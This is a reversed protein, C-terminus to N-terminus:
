RESKKYSDWLTANTEKIKFETASVYRFDKSSVNDWKDISSCMYIRTAENNLRYYYEHSSGEYLTIRLKGQVNNPIVGYKSSTADKPPNYQELFQITTTWDVVPLTNTFTGNLVSLAEKQKPTLVDYDPEDDDDGCATFTLITALLLM